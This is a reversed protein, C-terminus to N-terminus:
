TAGKLTAIIDHQMKKVNCEECIACKRLTTDKEQQLM